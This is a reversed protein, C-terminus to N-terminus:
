SFDKMIMDEIRHLRKKLSRYLRCFPGLPSFMDQIEDWLDRKDYKSVELFVYLLM